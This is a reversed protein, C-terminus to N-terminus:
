PLFHPKDPQSDPHALIFAQEKELNLMIRNINPFQDMDVKFRNANYVQPVLCCDAMTFSDGVCFNGSCKSLLIEVSQLGKEIWFNSWKTRESPDSSHKNMVCLNQIPQTGANIVECIERVKARQIRDNPLLKTKDPFSEELFELIAMSQTITEGNMVLAPVQGMPNINKYEEKNQEGGDKVLHVARYTYRIGKIELAIRVRWSCSSRWYSYLIPNSM